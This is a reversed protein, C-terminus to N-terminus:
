CGVAAKREQSETYFVLPLFGALVGSGKRVSDLSEPLIGAVAFQPCVIQTRVRQPSNAFGKWSLMVCSPRANDM